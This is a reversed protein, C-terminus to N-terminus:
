PCLIPELDLVTDLRRDPPIPHRRDPDILYAQMGAVEPGVFDAAHNDGVFVLRGGPSGVETLAAQYISPHPKCWGHTVSLVVATVADTLGMAALLRPVMGQDHTNSVVAVPWRASLRAVMEAAGEIPRVHHEWESLFTQGLDRCQADSLVIPALVAFRRAADSMDYERLTQRSEAELQKSAADWVSVFDDHSLTSGLSRVLQHTRRYGLRSRDPEYAVLTGFFDFLLAGDTTHQGMTGTHGVLGTEWSM